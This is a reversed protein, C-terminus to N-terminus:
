VSIQLAIYLLAITTVSSMERQIEQYEVLFYWFHTSGLRWIVAAAKSCVYVSLFSLDFHVSSLSWFFFTSRVVAITLNGNM